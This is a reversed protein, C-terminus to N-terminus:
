QAKQQETVKAEGQGPLPQFIVVNYYEQHEDQCYFKYNTGAVVQTSVSIPIMNLDGAVEHFLELDAKTLARQLTYAGVMQPEATIKRNMQKTGSCATLTLALLATIAKKM